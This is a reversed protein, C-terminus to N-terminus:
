LRFILGVVGFEEKIKLLITNAEAMSGVRGLRVRHWILGTEDIVAEEVYAFQFGRSKWLEVMESAKKATRWSNVQVIYNGDIRYEIGNQTLAPNIEHNLESISTEPISESIDNISESDTSKKHISDPDDIRNNSENIMQPSAESDPDTTKVSTTESELGNGEKPQVDKIEFDSLEDDLNDDLVPILSEPLALTEMMHQARDVFRSRSYDNIIRRLYVRTSDWEDGVYPFLHDFDPQVLTSDALQQLSAKEEDTTDIDNLRSAADNRVKDFSEKTSNWNNLTKTYENIKEIFQPQSRGMSAYVLAKNMFVDPLYPSEPYMSYFHGLKSIKDKPESENLVRILEQYDSEMRSDDSELAFDDFLVENLREAMRVTTRDTPYESYLIDVYKRASVTDGNTLFIDAKTYIAQSRISVKGLDYIVRNYHTIASDPLGLNLYFVNGIEYERSAIRERMETQQEDSFPIKSTDINLEPLVVSAGTSRVETTESQNSASAPESQVIASRVAELRRWNDVLPRGDWLATFSESAQALLEPNRHNLYGNDRSPDTNGSGPQNVNVLTTGRLQEQRLQREYERQREETIRALVLQFEETPLLGLRLLSDMESVESSLRAYDGFSRSLDAANFYYPLKELETANRSASDYYAAALRYDYFDFRHLEALAYHTKAITERSPPRISNYLVNKFITFAEIPEGKYQLTRGIEYNLDATQEFNKDDRSMSTLNRIVRDYQGQERIIENQKLNAFYILQYEPYKRSVGRFATLAMDLQGLQQLIQGFLFSGRSRLIDNRFGPLGASLMLAAQEFEDEEIYLQALVLHIELYIQQNWDYEDSELAATLYNIGDTYRNTELFIRGRWLIARQLVENNTSTAFIENFKQEASFYQTQYFYSKGILELADDVWKSSAHNRLVDASKEIAKEFDSQGARLPTRHIRIPREPNIVFSQNEILTLGRKYSVEANYFTNYYANFNNWRQKLGTGCGSLIILIFIASFLRTTM